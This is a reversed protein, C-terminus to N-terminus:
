EEMMDAIFKIVRPEDAYQRLLAVLANLTYYGSELGVDNEPIYLTGTMM